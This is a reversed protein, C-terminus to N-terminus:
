GTDSIIFPLGGKGAEASKCRHHEFVRPIRAGVAKLNEFQLGIVGLGYYLSLPCQKETAIM